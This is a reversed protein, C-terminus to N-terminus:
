GPQQLFHSTRGQIHSLAFSRHTPWRVQSENPAQEAWGKSMPLTFCPYLSIQNMGLALSKLRRPLLPVMM